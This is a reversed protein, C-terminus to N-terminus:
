GNLELLRAYHQGTTFRLVSSVYTLATEKSAKYKCPLEALAPFSPLDRSAQKLQNYVLAELYIPRWSALM